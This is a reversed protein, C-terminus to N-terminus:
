DTEYNADSGKKPVVKYSTSPAGVRVLVSSSLHIFLTLTLWGIRWPLAPFPSDTFVQEEM